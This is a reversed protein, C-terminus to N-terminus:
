IATESNEISQISLGKLFQKILLELMEEVDTNNEIFLKDNLALHTIGHVSSWLTRAIIPVVNAGSLNTVKELQEEILKFLADIQQQHFPPVEEGEPMSHNFVSTWLNPESRAYRYYRKALLLLVDVPAFDDLGESDKLYQQLTQLTRNNVQLILDNRNKFLHYLTGPTYRIADAVKRISLGEVGDARIFREVENLAMEKIESPSHDYRRAMPNAEGM